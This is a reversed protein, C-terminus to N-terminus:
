RYLSDTKQCDRLTPDQSISPIVSSVTEVLNRNLTHLNSSLYNPSIWERNWICFDHLLTGCFSAQSDTNVRLMHRSSQPSEYRRLCAGQFVM